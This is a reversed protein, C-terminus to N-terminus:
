TTETWDTVCDFNAFDVLNAFNKEVDVFDLSVTVINM